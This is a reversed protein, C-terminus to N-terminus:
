SRRFVSLMESSIIKKYNKRISDRATCMIWCDDCNHAKIAMDVRTKNEWIDTFTQIKLNGIRWPKIHCLYINALPDVYIFEEGAGCTIKRKHTALYELSSLNFWAKAWDKPNISMVQKNFLKEMDSKIEGAKPSLQKKHHGYYIPSENIINLSYNIKLKRSLDYVMLMQDKNREMMTFIVGVDSVGASKLNEITKIAKSFAGPIRRTGEHAAGIGDLSVRFAIKPDFRLIDPLQDRIKDVLFGNTTILLRAKPATQKLIQVVLPIDPRLFPEGGTIDINKLGSPLKRYIDPPLFTENKNKWIDCM